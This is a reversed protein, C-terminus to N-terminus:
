AHSSSRTPRSSARRRCGACSGRGTTTRRWRARRLTMRADDIRGAKALLVTQGSCPSATTASSPRPRRSRRDPRSRARRADDRRDGARVASRRRLVGTVLRFARAYDVLRRLESSRSLITTSASTSSSTSGRRTAASATSSSSLRRSSAESTAARPRPRTSRPSSALPSIGRRDIRVGRGDRGLRHRAGDHEGARLGPPRRDQGAEAVCAAGTHVGVDGSADVMAVQRVMELEDAAVLEILADSARVGDRMLALGRPGYGVEVVSQTAVAGVGAEAWPVVPGVDFYHSQVAIGFAGTEPDRAVISYTM